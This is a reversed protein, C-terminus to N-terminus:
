GLEARNSEMGVPNISQLESAPQQPPYGAGAVGPSHSPSPSTHPPPSGTTSSPQYGYAQHPHLPQQGPAQGQPPFPQYSQQQPPFGQQSYTSMHPDYGQQPSYPGYGSSPVGSPYVPGPGSSPTPVMPPPSNPNQQSMQQSPDQPEPTADGSRRRRRILLFAAAGVLGLAAVGGVTGGAIAGVNTSSGGGDNNGEETEEPPDTETQTPDSTESETETETATETETSSEETTTDPTHTRAWAPDYDLLTGTGQRASCDLFSYTELEDDDSDEASTSFLWTYCGGRTSVNCCLTSFDNPRDCEGASVADYDLCTTKVVNCRENPVCCGVYNDTYTCTASEDICVYPNENEEVFGCTGPALDYGETRPFLDMRGFLAKPAETPRPSSGQSFQVEYEAPSTERPPTWSSESRARPLPNKVWAAAAPSGFALLWAPSQRM